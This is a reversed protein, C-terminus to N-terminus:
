TPHGGGSDEVYEKQNFERSHKVYPPRETPPVMAVFMARTMSSIRSSPEDMSCMRSRKFNHNLLPTHPPHPTYTTKCKARFTDTEEIM